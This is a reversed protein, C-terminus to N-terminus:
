SPRRTRGRCRSAARPSIASRSPARRGPTSASWDPSPDTAPWAICSKCSRRTIARDSWTTRFTPGTPRSIRPPTVSPSSNGSATAAIPFAKVSPASGSHSGRTECRFPELLARRSLRESRATRRHRHRPLASRRRAGPRLYPLVAGAREFRTGDVPGAELESTGEGAEILMDALGTMELVTRVQPSPRIVALSGDIRQLQKYCKMLVAIGASSMFDVDSLELRIRDHGERM